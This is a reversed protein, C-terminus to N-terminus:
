SKESTLGKALQRFAIWVLCSIGLFLAGLDFAVQSRGAMEALHGVLWPGCVNVFYYVSFFIGMGVSRSGPALVRAPLSMIPGCPLGSIMGLLIFAPM